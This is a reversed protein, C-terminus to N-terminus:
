QDFLSRFVFGIGQLKGDSSFRYALGVRDFRFRWVQIQADVKSVALGVEWQDNIPETTLDRRV